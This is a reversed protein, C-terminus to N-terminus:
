GVSLSSTWRNSRSTPVGSNVRVVRLTANVPAPKSSRPRALTIRSSTAAAFAATRRTALPSAARNAEADCWWDHWHKRRV